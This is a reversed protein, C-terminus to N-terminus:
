GMAEPPILLVGRFTGFHCQKASQFGCFDATKAKKPGITVFFTVFQRNM